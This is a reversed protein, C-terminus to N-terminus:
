QIFSQTNMSIIIDDIEMRLRSLHIKHLHISGLRVSGEIHSTSYDKQRGAYLLPAPHHYRQYECIKAISDNSGRVCHLVAKVQQIKKGERM